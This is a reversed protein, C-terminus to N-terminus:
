FIEAQKAIMAAHTRNRANLKRSLTKVHLKITVEQLDLERAIEKNSQGRCLAALVQLERPSLKSALPHPAPEARETLFNIPAYQEGAVMFRVAHVFSKGTLTKPLFGAAGLALAEEAVKRPAVGSMLGVPQGGNLTMAEQLSELGNMGPMGFDLLILDYPGEARILEAAKDFTAAKVVRIDPESELYAQLTDLMLEHDDAVLIRM